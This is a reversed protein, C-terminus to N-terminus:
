RSLARTIEFQNVILHKPVDPHHWPGFYSALAL